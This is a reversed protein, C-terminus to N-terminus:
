RREIDTVADGSSKAKGALLATVASNGAARQLAFVGAAGGRRAAAGARARGEALREGIPAAARDRAVTM